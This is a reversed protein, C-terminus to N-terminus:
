PTLVWNFGLLFVDSQGIRGLIGSSSTSQWGARVEAQDTWEYSVELDMLPTTEDAWFGILAGTLGWDGWNQTLRIMSRHQTLTPAQWVAALTMVQPTDAWANLDDAVRRWDDVSLARSDYHHELWLQWGSSGSVQTGVLGNWAPRTSSALQNDNYRRVEASEYWALSGHYEWRQGPVWSAGGGLQWGQQYGVLAQWDLAGAFGQTRIACLEPRDELRLSCVLQDTNIGRFRQVSVLPEAPADNRSDKPGLWNLPNALYGYDWHLNKAGLTLEYGGLGGDYYAQRVQWANNADPEFRLDLQAGSQSVSVDYRERWDFSADEVLPLQADVKTQREAEWDAELRWDLSWAPLASSMVALTAFARSLGNRKM